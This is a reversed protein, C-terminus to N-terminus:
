IFGCYWEVSDELYTVQIIATHNPSFSSTLMFRFIRICCRFEELGLINMFYVGVEDQGRVTEVLSLLGGPM